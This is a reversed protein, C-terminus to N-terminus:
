FSGFWRGLHGGQRAKGGATLALDWSQADKRAGPTGAPNPNPGKWKTCPSTKAWTRDKALEKPLIVFFLPIPNWPLEQFPAPEVPLHTRGARQGEERSGLVRM